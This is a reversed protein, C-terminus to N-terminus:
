RVDRVRGRDNEKGRFGILGNQLFGPLQPNAEEGLGDTQLGKAVDKDLDNRSRNSVGNERTVRRRVHIYWQLGEAHVRVVALGRAQIQRGLDVRDNSSGRRGRIPLRGGVTAACGKASGPSQKGRLEDRHRPEVASAASGDDEGSVGMRDEAPSRELWRPARRSPRPAQTM